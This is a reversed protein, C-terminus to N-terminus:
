KYNEVENAVIALIREMADISLLKFNLNLIKNRLYETKIKLRVSDTLEDIFPQDYCSFGIGLGTDRRFKVGGNLIIQTKTLREINRKSLRGYSGNFCVEDGIKLSKLWEKNTM